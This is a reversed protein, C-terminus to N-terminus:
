LKDIELFDDLPLKWSFSRVIMFNIMKVLVYQEM